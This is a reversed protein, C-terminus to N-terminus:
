VREWNEVWFLYLSCILESRGLENGLKSIVKRLINENYYFYYVKVM